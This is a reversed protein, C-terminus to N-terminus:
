TDEVIDDDPSNIENTLDVLVEAIEDDGWGGSGSGSTSFTPLQSYVEKEGHYIWM